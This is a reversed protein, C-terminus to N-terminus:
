RGHPDNEAHANAADEASADASASPAQGARPYNHQPQRTARIAPREATTAHSCGRRALVAPQMAACMSCTM